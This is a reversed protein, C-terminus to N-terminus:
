TIPTGLATSTLTTDTAALSLTWTLEQGDDEVGQQMRRM